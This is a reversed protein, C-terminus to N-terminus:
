PASGSAGVIEGDPRLREYDKGLAVDETGFAPFHAALTLHCADIADNEARKWFQQGAQGPMLRGIREARRLNVLMEAQLLRFIFWRSDVHHPEPWDKGLRDHINHYLHHVLRAEGLVDQRLDAAHEPSLRPQNSLRLVDWFFSCRNQMGEAQSRVRQRLDQLDFQEHWNANLAWSLAFDDLFEVPKGGQLEHGIFVSADPLLLMTGDARRLKQVAGRKFHEANLGVELLTYASGVLRDNEALACAETCALRRLYSLDAYIVPGSV